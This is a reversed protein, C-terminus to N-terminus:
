LNGKQTNLDTQIQQLEKARVASQQQDGMEDLARIWYQYLEVRKSFQPKEAMINAFLSAAEKHKQQQFLGVARSFDSLPDPLDTTVAAPNQNSLDQTTSLSAAKQNVSSTNNTNNTKAATKPTLQPASYVDTKRLENLALSMGVVIFIMTLWALSRRMPLTMRLLARISDVLGPRIEQKAINKVRQLVKDSPETIPFNKFGKEIQAFEDLIARQEPHVKFYDEINCSLQHGAVGLYYDFLQEHTPKFTM